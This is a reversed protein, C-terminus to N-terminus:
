QEIIIKYRDKEDREVRVIVDCYNVAILVNMWHAPYKRPFFINFLLRVFLYLIHTPVNSKNKAIM